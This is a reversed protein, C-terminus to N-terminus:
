LFAAWNLTFVLEFYFRQLRVAVIQAKPTQDSAFEGVL